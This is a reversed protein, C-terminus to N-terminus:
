TFQFLIRITACDVNVHKLSVQEKKNLKEDKEKKRLEMLYDNFLNERDRMKEISKYREDNKYRSCFDSLSSRCFDNENYLIIIYFCLKLSM